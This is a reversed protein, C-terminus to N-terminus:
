PRTPPPTSSASITTPLGKTYSNMWNSYRIEDGNAPHAVLPQRLNDQAANSRLQYAKFARELPSLPGIAASQATLPVVFALALAIRAWRPCRTTNRSEASLRASLPEGSCSDHM